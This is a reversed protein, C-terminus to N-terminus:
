RFRSELYLELIGFVSWKSCQMTSVLIRVFFFLWIFALIFVTFITFDNKLQLFYFTCGYTSFTNNALKDEVNKAVTKGCGLHDDLMVNCVDLYM